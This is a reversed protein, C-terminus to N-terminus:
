PNWHTSPGVVLLFHPLFLYWCRVDRIGGGQDWCDTFELVYHCLTRSYDYKKDGSEKVAQCLISDGVLTYKEVITMSLQVIFGLKQMYSWREMEQSPISETDIDIKLEKCAAAVIYGKLV